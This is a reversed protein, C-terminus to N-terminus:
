FIPCFSLMHLFNLMHEKSVNHEDIGEFLFIGQNNHKSDWTHFSPDHMQLYDVLEEVNGNKLDQTKFNEKNYSRVKQNFEAQKMHSTFNKQNHWYDPQNFAEPHYYGAIGKICDFDPNHVLYAAKRVDFSGQSCVDHVAFESLNELHHNSVLHRSLTGLHNLLSKEKSSKKTDEM